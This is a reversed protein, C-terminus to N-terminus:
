KIAQKMKKLQSVPPVITNIGSVSKLFVAKNVEPQNDFIYKTIAERVSIIFDYMERLENKYSKVPAAVVEYTVKIPSEGRSRRAVEHLVKKTFSEGFTERLVEKAIDWDSQRVANCSKLHKKIEFLRKEVENVRNAWTTRLAWTEKDITGRQYYARNGSIGLSTLNAALEQKEKVLAERENQLAEIEIEINMERIM